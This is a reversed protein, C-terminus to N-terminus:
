WHGIVPDGSKDYIIKKLMMDPIRDRSVEHDMDCCPCKTLIRESFKHAPGKKLIKGWVGVRRMDDPREVAFTTGCEGCTVVYPFDFEEIKLIRM